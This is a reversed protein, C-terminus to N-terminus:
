DSGIGREIGTGKGNAIKPGITGIISMVLELDIASEIATEQEIRILIEIGTVIRTEPEIMIELLMKLMAKIARKTETVTGIAQNIRKPSATEQLLELSTDIEVLNETGTKIVHGTERERTNPLVCEAVLPDVAIVPLRSMAILIWNIQLAHGADHSLDEALLLALVQDIGIISHALVIQVLHLAGAAHDQGHAIMEIEHDTVIKTKREVVIKTGKQPGNEHRNEKAVAIWIVVQTAIMVATWSATVTGIVTETETGIETATGKVIETVIGIGTEKETVTATETESGIVNGTVDIAAISGTVNEIALKPDPAAADTPEIVGSMRIVNETMALRPGVVARGQRETRESTETVASLISIM